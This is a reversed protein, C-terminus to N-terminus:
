SWFHRCVTIHRPHTLSHITGDHMFGSQVKGSLPQLGVMGVMFATAIWTSNNLANLDTAIM